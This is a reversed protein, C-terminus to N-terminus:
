ISNDILHNLLIGDPYKEFERDVKNILNQKLKDISEAGYNADLWFKTDAILIDFINKVSKWDVQDRMAFNDAFWSPSHQDPFPHGHLGPFKFKHKFEDHVNIDISQDILIGVILFSRMLKSDKCKKIFQETGCQCFEGHQDIYHHRKLREAESWFIDILALTKNM